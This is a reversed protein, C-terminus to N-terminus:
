SAQTTSGSGNGFRQGGARAFTAACEGDVATTLQVTTATIAGTDDTKGDARLCSGVKVDSATGKATTSYTTTGSVTVVVESTTATSGAAGPLTSTVTFGTSSVAKVTGFAGGGFGRFQGRAGSQGGNQGGNQGGGQGTSGGVPPAGGEANGQPAGGQGNQPGRGQGGGIACSGDAAARTIRVSGADVKTAPTPTTGPTPMAAAAADASTVAICDGVKVDGLNASVQKTFTTASTWSVAVQGDSQSQVQATSGSVAAVKGNAGPLRQQQTSQAGGTAAGSPAASNQTGGDSGCAAAGLLLVGSGCVAAIRRAVVTRSALTSSSLYSM